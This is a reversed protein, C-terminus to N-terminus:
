QVRTGQLSERFLIGEASPYLQYRSIREVSPGRKNVGGDVQKSALELVPERPDRRAPGGGSVELLGQGLFFVVGPDAAPGFERYVALGLM